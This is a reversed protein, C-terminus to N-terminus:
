VKMRNKEIEIINGINGGSNWASGGQNGGDGGLNRVNRGWEM